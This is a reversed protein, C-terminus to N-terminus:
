DRNKKERENLQLKNLNELHFTTLHKINYNDFLEDLIEDITNIELEKKNYKSIKKIINKIITSNIAKEELKINLYKLVFLYYIKVKINKDIKLLNEIYSDVENVKINFNNIGKLLKKYNVLPLLKLLILKISEKNKEEELDYDLIKKIINELNQYFDEPDLEFIYKLNFIEDLDQCLIKLDKIGLTDYYNSAGSFNFNKLEEILARHLKANEFKPEQMLILKTLFPIRKNTKESELYIEGKKIYSPLQYDRWAILNIGREVAIKYLAIGFMRLGLTSDMITNTRDIEGAKVLSHLYNYSDNVNEIDVSKGVVYKNMTKLYKKLEKFRKESDKTYIIFINEINPIARITKLIPSEILIKEKNLPSLSLFSVLTSVEQEFDYETNLTKLEKFFDLASEKIVKKYLTEVEMDERGDLYYDLALEFDKGKFEGLPTDLIKEKIEERTIEKSM